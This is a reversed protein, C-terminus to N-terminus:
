LIHNHLMICPPYHPSRSVGICAVAADLLEGILVVHKEPKLTCEIRRQVEKILDDTSVDELHAAMAEPAAAWAIGGRSSLCSHLLCGQEFAHVALWTCAHERCM